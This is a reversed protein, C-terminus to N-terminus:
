GVLFWPYCFLDSDLHLTQFACIRERRQGCMEAKLKMVPLVHYVKFGNLTELSNLRDRQIAYDCNLLM